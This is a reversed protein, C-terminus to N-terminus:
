EDIYGQREYRDLEIEFETKDGYNRWPIYHPYSNLDRAGTASQISSVNWATTLGAAPDIVGGKKPLMRKGTGGLIIERDSSEWTLWKDRGYDGIGHFRNTGALLPGPCQQYDRMWQEVEEGTVRGAGRALGRARQKEWVENRKLWYIGSQVSMMGEWEEVDWGGLGGYQRYSDPLPKTSFVCDTELSIIRGLGIDVIARWLKARCVSTIFGAWDLQHYPPIGRWEGNPQLRAGVRQAVKGYASNIVKKLAYEAPDGRQKMERRQEYLERIFAFPREETAEIVWAGHIEVEDWDWVNRMEPSWASGSTYSPFYVEGYKTRHPLPFPANLQIKMPMDRADLTYDWLAFKAWEPFPRDRPLESATVYRLTANKWSWLDVMASPYASVIDSQYVPGDHIGVAIQEFRGGFYGRQCADLYPGPLAKNMHKKVGNNRFVKAVLASPGWWHMPLPIGADIILERMREMLRVYMRQEVTWYRLVYPLEDYQFSARGAKGEAAVKWDSDEGIHQAYADLLSANDFWSQVEYIDASVRRSPTSTHFRKRRMYQVRFGDVYRMDGNIIPEVDAARMGRLLFNVDFDFGFGFLIANPYKRAVKRILNLMAKGTVNEGTIMEGTSFGFLMVQQQHQGPPTWTETDCSIFPRGAAGITILERTSTM